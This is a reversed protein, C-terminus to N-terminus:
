GCAPDLYDRRYRTMRRWRWPARRPVQAETGAQPQQCKARHSKGRQQDRTEGNLPGHRIGLRAQNAFALEKHAYECLIRQERQIDLIRPLQTLRHLPQPRIRVDGVDAENLRIPGDQM